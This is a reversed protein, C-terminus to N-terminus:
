VRTLSSSDLAIRAEDESFPLYYVSGKTADSCPDVIVPTISVFIRATACLGTSDCIRYTLTDKGSYSGNPLYVIKNNSILAAGNMPQVTVSLTAKNINNNPDYDNALIDVVIPAGGGGSASDDMAIPPCVSCVDFAELDSNKVLNEYGEKATALLYYMGTTPSTTWPLEFTRTCASSDVCTAPLINGPPNVRIDLGTIDTYGFPTTVKARAYYTTNINGSVRKTGGPYPADYVEFSIFDIFTSVPLLSIRSPM